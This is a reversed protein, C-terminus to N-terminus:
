KDILKIKRYNESFKKKEDKLFIVALVLMIPFVTSVFLGSKLGLQDLNINYVQGIEIIKTSKQAIDSMFGALWPGISGGLDGFIALMGFMATGGKPYMKASLSFTGPWMLSVSLGSIACAILSLMPWPSFVTVAYCTVCLIGSGFLAKRLNIRSGWIGYLTRGIGMFIAFMCPGAIDGIVKPVSLGKEAFISSWQSMTLESAGACLMLMFAVLIHNSKLLVKIPMQEEQPMLPMLPVKIFKFGNYIPIVAWIIPIITWMDEGILKLLITTIFVVGMQGWCYFSHLLSMASAKEDGPISEVIPSVLVELIGGGLAYIMVAMILGIYPSIMLQPLISLGILGIACFIHALIASKRYGLKDVYKIAIVDAFTQTAFNILVLRGIEEFSIHFQKQFIIFLIPALNNVVAQTIYGIYCARLTHKYTYKM